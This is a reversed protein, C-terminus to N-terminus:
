RENSGPGRSEFVPVFVARGLLERLLTESRVISQMTTEAQEHASTAGGEVAGRLARLEELVALGIKETTKPAEASAHFLSVLIGKRRATIASRATPEISFVSTARLTQMPLSVSVVLAGSKIPQPYHEQHHQSLCKSHICNSLEVISKDALSQPKM